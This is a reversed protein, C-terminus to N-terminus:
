NLPEINMINWHTYMKKNPQMDSFLLKNQRSQTDVETGRNCMIKHEADDVLTDTGINTTSVQTGYSGQIGGLTKSVVTCRPSLFYHVM